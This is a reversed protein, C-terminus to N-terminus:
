LSKVYEILQAKMTPDFVAPAPPMNSLTEIRTLVQMKRARLMTDNNVYDMLGSDGSHCTPNGCNTQLNEQVDAFQLAVVEIGGEVDDAIDGDGEEEGEVETTETEVEDGASLDESNTDREEAQQKDNPETNSAAEQSGVKRNSSEVHGANCSLLCYLVCFFLVNLKM